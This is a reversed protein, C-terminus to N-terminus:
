YVMKLNVVTELSKYALKFNDISMGLLNYEFIGFCKKLLLIGWVNKM